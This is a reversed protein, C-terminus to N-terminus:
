NALQDMLEFLHEREVTEILRDGQESVIAAKLTSLEAPNITIKLLVYYILEYRIQSLNDVIMSYGDRKMCAIMAKRKLWLDKTWIDAGDILNTM